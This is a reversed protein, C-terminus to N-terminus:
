PVSNRHKSMEFDSPHLRAVNVWISSTSCNGIARFFETLFINNKEFLADAKVVGRIKRISQFVKRPERTTEFVYAWVKRM